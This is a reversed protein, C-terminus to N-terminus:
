KGGLYLRKVQPNNLIENGTGEFRNQGLELVYAYNSIKLASAANQEIMLITVGMDRIRLIETFIQKLMKPSLGLSPEDLMLIVPSLLLSRGLQLIQQQGGSLNGALEKKKEYLIPFKEYVIEISKKLNSDSRIYGGMELNENVSMNKFINKGQPVFSIGLHLIQAPSLNTIEKGDFVIKGSRAKVFGYITKFLTSKGAGNPGIVSIIQGKNFKMSVNHIIDMDARYGSVLKDVYLITNDAVM